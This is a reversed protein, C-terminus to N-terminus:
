DIQVGAEILLSSFYRSAVILSRLLCRAHGCGSGSGCGLGRSIGCVGFVLGGPLLFNLCFEASKPQISLSTLVTLFFLATPESM